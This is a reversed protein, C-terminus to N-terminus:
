SEEPIPPLPPARKLDSTHVWPTHGLLKAATPTTLIVTYLGEWQPALTPKQRVRLLM